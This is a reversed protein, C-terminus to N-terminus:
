ERSLYREPEEEFADRCGRACFYFVEGDHEYTAAATEPDVWMGCVPDKKKGEQDSM